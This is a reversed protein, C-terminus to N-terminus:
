LLAEHGDAAVKQYFKRLEVLPALPAEAYHSIHWADGRSRLVASVRITGGFATSAASERLAWDVVAFISGLDQKLRRPYVLQPRQRITEFRKITAGVYQEVAAPGFLRQESEAPLYSSAPDDTDWLNILEDADRRSWADWFADATQGIPNTDDVM